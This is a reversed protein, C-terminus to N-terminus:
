EHLTGITNGSLHWLVSPEASGDAAAYYKLETGGGGVPLCIGASNSM